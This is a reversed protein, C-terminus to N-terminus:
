NVAWVFLDMMQRDIQQLEEFRDEKEYYIFRRMKGMQKETIVGIKWDFADNNGDAHMRYSLTYHLNHESLGYEISLKRILLRVGLKEEETLPCVGDGQMQAKPMFGFTEGYKESAEYSFYFGEEENPCSARSLRVVRVLWRGDNIWVADGVRVERATKPYTMM